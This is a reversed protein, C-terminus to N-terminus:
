TAAVFVAAEEGAVYGTTFAAQFNYGGSDADLDLVEGCFYLGGVLRSAMTHPDIEKLSVGGATVMASALPLPSKINFRLSKLLSIIRRREEASIQNVPKDSPIGTMEIFPEVM